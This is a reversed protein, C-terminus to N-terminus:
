EFNAPVGFAMVNLNWDSLFFRQAEPVASSEVGLFKVFSLDSGCVGFSIFARRSAFFNLKAYIGRRTCYSEVSDIGISRGSSM